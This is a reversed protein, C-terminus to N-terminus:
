VNYYGLFHKCYFIVLSQYNNKGMHEILVYWFLLFFFLKVLLAFTVLSSFNEHIWSNIANM